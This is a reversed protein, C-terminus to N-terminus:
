KLMFRSKGINGKRRQAKWREGDTMLRSDNCVRDELPALRSSNGFAACM